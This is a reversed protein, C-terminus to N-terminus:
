RPEAAPPRVRTDRTEPLRPREPWCLLALVGLLGIGGLLLGARADSPAYRARVSREGPQLLLASVVGDARAPALTRPPDADTVLRWGAYLSWPESVVLWASRAGAAGAGPLTVRTRQPSERSLTGAVADRGTDDLTHALRALAEREAADLPFAPMPPTPARFFDALSEATYRASLGRLPRAGAAPREHCAACGHRAYLARGRALTEPDVPRPGEAAARPVAAPPPAEGSEAFAVRFIAAGYDDSVYIAGDPGEAVDVPRGYVDEGDLFGTLFDREEITGDANWHLSVVKYGDKRTRNWSGHLAVLAAGRYAPPLGAGRLFTLGLPANHARFAHVPGLSRAVDAAHGEGLDPDAVRDGYAFPWGYFGGEVVRNLECPPVDDGLLDRGNDTAYLEGTEPRWDFVVANRLASAFIEPARGDSRHRVISARRPDDELCVNCSSGISVYLHGDPGFRLTRTWHGGGAPLGSVVAEPPGSATRSVPDFRLRRVGGSEAVYL